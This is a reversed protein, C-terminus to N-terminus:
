PLKPGALSWVALELRPLTACVSSHIECFLSKVKPKRITKHLIVFVNTQRSASRVSVIYLVERAVHAVRQTGQRPRPPKALGWGSFTGVKGRGWVVNRGSNSPLM